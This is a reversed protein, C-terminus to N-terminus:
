VGVPTVMYAKAWDAIRTWEEVSLFPCTHGNPAVAHGKRHKYIHVLMQPVTMNACDDPPVWESHRCLLPQGEPASFEAFTRYCDEDTYQDMDNDTSAM